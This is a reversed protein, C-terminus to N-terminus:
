HNRLDRLIQKNQQLNVGDNWKQEYLIARSMTRKAADIDGIAKQALALYRHAGPFDRCRSVAITGNEIAMDYDGLEFSCKCQGLAIEFILPRTSPDKHSMIHKRLAAYIESAKCCEGIKSYADARWVKLQFLNDESLKRTQNRKCALLIEDAIDLTAEPEDLFEAFIMAKAYLHQTNYDEDSYIQCFSAEYEAIALEAYRKREVSQEASNQARRIYLTGREMSKEVLDPMEGRCYPCSAEHSSDRAHGQYVLLCQFCFVHGCGLTVPNTVRDELCIVCPGEIVDTPKGSVCQAAESNERLKKLTTCTPKHEKWHTIQCEKSCYYFSLCRACCKQPSAIGCADCNICERSVVEEPIDLDVGEALNFDSKPKPDAMAMKSNDRKKQKEM